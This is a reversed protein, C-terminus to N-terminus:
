SLIRLTWLQEILCMRKRINRWIFRWRGRRNLSWRNGGSLWKQGLIGLLLMIRAKVIFRQYLHTITLRSRLSSTIIKKTKTLTPKVSFHISPNEFEPYHPAIPPSPLHWSTHSVSVLIQPKQPSTSSSLTNSNSASKKYLQCHNM